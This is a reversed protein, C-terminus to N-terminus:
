VVSKRDRLDERSPVTGLISGGPKLVRLIERLGARTVEPTLHEIVESVVVVDFSSDAFPIKEIYGAQARDGLGLTQRLKRISRESPDLSYVEVKKALAMEEFLGSGCGVNLIVRSPPIRSLLLRVRARSGEFTEPSENQYYDWIVDQGRQAQSIDSLDAM